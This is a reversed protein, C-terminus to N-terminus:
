AAEGKLIAVAKRGADLFRRYTPDQVNGSCQAKIAEVEAVVAKQVTTRRDIHRYDASGLLANCATQITHLHELNVSDASAVFSQGLVVPDNDFGDADKTLLLVENLGTAPNPGEHILGLAKALLVYPLAQQKVEASSAVFLRPWTTGDGETHL